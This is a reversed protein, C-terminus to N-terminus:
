EKHCNNRCQTCTSCKNTAVRESIAVKVRERIDFDLKRGFYAEEPTRPRHKYHPRVCNYDHVAWKLYKNLSAITDFKRNRLYRGKISRHVAEVPSNSFRIDKLAKIKTIRHASLKQIFRDLHKNHNEAGGDTVLYSHEMNQHILITDISKKLSRRVLDFTNRRSVHYGLILKSYNDMVFSICVKKGDTLEYFTTDVHLYENPQTAILGETKRQKKTLKKYIGFLKAYKYWSYLSAVVRKKRLADSAISVVPWHDMSPDTLNKKIKAIEDPALQQPHRRVCLQTFSDFCEFRAEMSWQYYKTRTIGMIKLARALGFNERLIDAAKLIQRQTTKDEGARIIVPSIFHSIAVWTKSLTWLLAKLKALENKAEVINFTQDFFRRFEHGVYNKYNNRRWTSITSYPIKKRFHPPLMGEQGISYLFIVASDYKKRM